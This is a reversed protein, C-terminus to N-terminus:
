DDEGIIAVHHKRAWRRAYEEARDCESFFRAVFANGGCGPPSLRAMQVNNTGGRWSVYDVLLYCRLDQM